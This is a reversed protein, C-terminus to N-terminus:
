GEEEEKSFRKLDTDVDDFFQIAPDYDADYAEKIWRYAQDKNPEADIGFFNILGWAFQSPSHGAEANALFLEKAADNMDADFHDGSGEPNFLLQAVFHKSNQEGAEAAEVVLRLGALTDKAIHEGNLLLKGLSQQAPPYGKEAAYRYEAIARDMDKPFGHWGWRYNAAVAWSAEPSGLFASYSCGIGRKQMNDESWCFHMPDFYVMASYGCALLLFITVGAIVAYYTDRCM